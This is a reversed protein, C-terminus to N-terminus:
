FARLPHQSLQLHCCRQPYPALMCELFVDCIISCAPRIRDQLLWNVRVLEELNHSFETCQCQKLASTMCNTPSLFLLRLAQISFTQHCYTNTDLTGARRCYVYIYAVHNKSLLYIKGTPFSYSVNKIHSKYLQQHLLTVDQSVHTFRVGQLAHQLQLIHELM